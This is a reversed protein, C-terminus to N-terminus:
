HMVLSALLNQLSNLVGCLLAQGTSSLACNAAKLSRMPASGRGAGVLGAVEPTDVGLESSANFKYLFAQVTSLNVLPWM